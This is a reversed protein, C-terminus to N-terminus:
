YTGVKRKSQVLAVKIIRVFLLMLSAGRKNDRRPSRGSHRELIGYGFVLFQECHYTGAHDAKIIADVGDTPNHLPMIGVMVNQNVNSPNLVASGGPFQATESGDEARVGV